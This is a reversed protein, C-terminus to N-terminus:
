QGIDGYPPHATGTAAMCSRVRPKPDEPGKMHSCVAQPDAPGTLALHNEEMGPLSLAAHGSPSSKWGGCCAEAVSLLDCLLPGMQAPALGSELCM